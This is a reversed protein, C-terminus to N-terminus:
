KTDNVEVAVIDCNIGDLYGNSLICPMSDGLWSTEAIVQYFMKDEYSLILVGQGKKIRNFDKTYHEYEKPLKPSNIEYYLDEPVMYACDPCPHELTNSCFICESWRDHNMYDQIEPWTVM